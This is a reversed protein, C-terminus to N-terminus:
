CRGLRYRCLCYFASELVRDHSGGCRYLVQKPCAHKREAFAIYHAPVVALGSYENDLALAGTPEFSFNCVDHSQTSNNTTMLHM